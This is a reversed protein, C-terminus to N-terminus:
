IMAPINCVTKWYLSILMHSTKYRIKNKRKKFFIRLNCYLIMAISFCGYCHTRVQASKIKSHNLVFLGVNQNSQIQTSKLNSLELLAVYMELKVNNIEHNDLLNANYPKHVQFINSPKELFYFEFYFFSFIVKSWINCM